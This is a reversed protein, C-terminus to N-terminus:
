VKITDKEPSDLANTMETIVVEEKEEDGFFEPDIVYTKDGINFVFDEYGPLSSLTLANISYVV